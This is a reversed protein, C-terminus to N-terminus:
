KSSETCEFRLLDDDSVIEISSETDLSVSYGIEEVSTMIHRRLTAEATRDLSILLLAAM